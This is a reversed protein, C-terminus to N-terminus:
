EKKKWVVKGDTAENHFGPMKGDGKGTLGGDPYGLIICASDFVINFKDCCPAVMYYVTRGKYHYRTISQPLGESPSEAMSKIKTELCSPLDKKSAAKKNSACSFLFLVAAFTIIRIM